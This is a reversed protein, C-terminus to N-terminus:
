KKPNRWAKIWLCVECSRVNKMSIIEHSLLPPGSGLHDHGIYILSPTYIDWLKPHEYVHVTYMIGDRKRTYVDGAVPEHKWNSRPSDWEFELGYMNLELYYGMLIGNDWSSKSNMTFSGLSRGPGRWFDGPLRPPALHPPVSSRHWPTRASTALRSSRSAIGSIYKKPLWVVHHIFSQLSLKQWM